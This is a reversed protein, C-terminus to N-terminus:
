NQKNEQNIKKMLKEAEKMVKKTANCAKATSKIFGVLRTLTKDDVIELYEDIDSPAIEPYTNLCAKLLKAISLLNVDYIATALLYGLEDYLEKDGAIRDIEELFKMGFFLNYEKGNITIM